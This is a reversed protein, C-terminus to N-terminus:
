ILHQMFQRATNIEYVIILDINPNFVKCTADATDIIYLKLSTKQIAIIVSFPLFSRLVYILLIRFLLLIFLSDPRNLIM